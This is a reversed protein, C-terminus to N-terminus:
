TASGFGHGSRKFGLLRLELRIESLEAELAERRLAERACRLQGIVLDERELLRSARMVDTRLASVNARRHKPPPASMLKAVARPNHALSDAATIM